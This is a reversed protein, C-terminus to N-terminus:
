QTGRDDSDMADLTCGLADLRGQWYREYSQVWAMVAALPEAELRYYRFRGERREAVLGVGRLAALHQSVAPQSIELAETLESVSREGGKLLDLLRRRTPCAIATFPSDVAGRSM